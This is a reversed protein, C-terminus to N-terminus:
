GVNYTGGLAGLFIILHFLGSVGTYFTYVVMASVCFIFLTYFTLLVTDVDWSM